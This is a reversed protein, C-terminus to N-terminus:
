LPWILFRRLPWSDFSFRSIECSVLYSVAHLSTPKNQEDGEYETPKLIYFQQTVETRIVTHVSCKELKPSRHKKTHTIERMEVKSKRTNLTKGAHFARDRLTSGHM